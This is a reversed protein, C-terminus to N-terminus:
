LPGSILLAVVSVWLSLALLAAAILRAVKM